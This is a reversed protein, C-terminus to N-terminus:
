LALKTTNGIIQEHIIQVKARRHINIISNVKSTNANQSGYRQLLIFHGLLTEEPPSTYPELQM